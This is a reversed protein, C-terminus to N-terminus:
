SWVPKKVGKQSEWWIKCAINLLIGLFLFFDDLFVDIIDKILDGFIGTMYLQFTAPANCLGFPMRRYAFTWFPCTFITKEQDELDISIQFYWSLGDLFCYFVHGSLQELMQNIFSLHFHNKRTADKLRKYDIHVRWGIIFHTLILENKEYTIVTM